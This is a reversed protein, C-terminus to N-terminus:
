FVGDNDCSILLQGALGARRHKHIKRYEESSVTAFMTKADPYTFIGVADWEGEGQGIMWANANGGFIAGFGEQGEVMKSLAKAYRAYAERGSIDEGDKYTAKDKFKLLNLMYVPKGDEHEALFAKIQQPTPDLANLTPM